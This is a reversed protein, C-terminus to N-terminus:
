LSNRRVSSNHSHSISYFILFILFVTEAACASIHASARSSHCSTTFIEERGQWMARMIINKMAKWVSAHLCSPHLSNYLEQLKAILLKTIEQLKAWTISHKPWQQDSTTTFTMSYSEPLTVPFISPPREPFSKM